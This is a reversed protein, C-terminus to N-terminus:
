NNLFHEGSRPNQYSLTLKQEKPLLTHMSNGYDTKTYFNFHIKKIITFLQLNSENDTDVSVSM